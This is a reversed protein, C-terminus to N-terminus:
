KTGGAVLYQPSGAVLQTLSTYFSKNGQNLQQDLQLQTNIAGLAINDGIQMVQLGYQYQNNLLQTTLGAIQSEVQQQGVGGMNASAQQLRARAAQVAQQNAATLEGRQAQAVLQQGQQQYPAALAQKQAAATDAGAQAQRGQLAGYAGLAGALGLRGLTDPKTLAELAKDGFGTQPAKPATPQLSQM